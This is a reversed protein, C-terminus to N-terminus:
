RVKRILLAFKGQAALRQYQGSALVKSAQDAGGGGSDTRYLIYDADSIGVRLAYASLRNSFHPNENESLALSATAPVQRGLDNLDRLNQLESPTLPGLEIRGWASAFTKHQFVVGWHLSTLFTAMAMALLAATHKKTGDQALIRELTLSSGM